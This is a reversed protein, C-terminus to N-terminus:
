KAQKWSTVFSVFDPFHKEVEAGAQHYTVVPQLDVQKNSVLWLPSSNLQAVIACSVEVFCWSPM